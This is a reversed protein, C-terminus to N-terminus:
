AVRARLLSCLAFLVASPLLVALVPPNLVAFVIADTLILVISVILMGLGKEFSAALLPRANFIVNAIALGLVAAVVGHLAAQTLPYEDLRLYVITIAVTILGSPVLLGVLAAAAGAARSFRYGMLASVAVQSMGPGIQCVAWAEAFELPSMWGGREVFARYVNLRTGQGGGFSAAGIRLWLLLQRRVSPPPKVIDGAPTIRGASPM